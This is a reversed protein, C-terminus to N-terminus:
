GDGVGQLAQARVVRELEERLERLGDSTTGRDRARLWADHAARVDDTTVHVRWPPEWRATM